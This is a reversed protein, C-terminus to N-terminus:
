SNEKISMHLCDLIWLMITSWPINSEAVNEGSEAQATAKELATLPDVRADPGITLTPTGSLRSLIYGQLVWASRTLQHQAIENDSRASRILIKAHEVPFETPYDIM